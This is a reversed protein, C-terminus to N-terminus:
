CASESSHYLQHQRLQSAPQTSWHYWIKLFLNQMLKELNKMIIIDSWKVDLQDAGFAFIPIFIEGM